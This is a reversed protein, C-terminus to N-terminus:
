GPNGQVASSQRAIDLLDEADGVHVRPLWRRPDVVVRQLLCEGRSLLDGQHGHVGEVAVARVTDSQGSAPGAAEFAVVGVDECGRIDDAGVEDLDHVSEECQGARISFFRSVWGIGM